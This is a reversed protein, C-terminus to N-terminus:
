PKVRVLDELYKSDFVLRTTQGWKSVFVIEWDWWGNGYRKEFRGVEGAHARNGGWGLGFRRTLPNSKVRVRAGEKVWKPVDPGIYDANPDRLTLRRRM